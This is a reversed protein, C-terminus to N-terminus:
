VVISSESVVTVDNTVTGVDAVFSRVLAEPEVDSFFALNIPPKTPEIPPVM